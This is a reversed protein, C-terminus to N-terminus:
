VRVNTKAHKRSGNWDKSLVHRVYNQIPRFRTLGVGSEELGYNGLKTEFFLASWMRNVTLKKRLLHRHSEAITVGRKGGKTIFHALEDCYKVFSPTVDFGELETHEDISIGPNM